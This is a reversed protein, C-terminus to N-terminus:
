LGTLVEDEWISLPVFKRGTWEGFLTLPHGGSLALLKWEIQERSAVPLSKQQQDVLYLTAGKKVPIVSELCAPFDLLWPNVALAKAFSQLLSEFDPFGQIDNVRESLFEMKKVTARMQLSGPYYVLEAKMRKGLPWSRQFGANRYDYELILADKGSQEGKLWTRRFVGNDINVGTFQGIIQWDDWIGERDMLDDKRVTMGATILLQDQLAPPLQDLNQLGRTLLYLEAIETLLQEPWQSEGSFLLPISRIKLAAGGLKNDVMRASIEQWYQYDLGETAALGQRILDGLWTQLDEAGARMQAIRKEQNPDRLLTKQEVPKVIPSGSEITGKGRRTELWSGVWDPAQDRIFFAESRSIFILLLGLAHKCPFKRSPCNCRFAPGRLDVQTQYFRKGSGKCEGWIARENGELFRWYRESALSRGKEATSADPAFSLVQQASWIM